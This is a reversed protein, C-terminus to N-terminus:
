RNNIRPQFAIRAQTALTGDIDIAANFTMEEAAPLAAFRATQGYHGEHRFAIDFRRIHNHEYLELPLSDIVLDVYRRTTVHRNVDIDSVAFEYSRADEPMEIAALRGQPAIPCPIDTVAAALTDLVSLDAMTRSEMDIAMWITRAYGITVGADLDTLQFDRESFARNISAVWTRLRYNRGVQTPETLEVSVRSLVWSMGHAIMRDFGAGLENAHGSATEIIYNALNSMSLERQANCDAATLLFEHDFYIKDM